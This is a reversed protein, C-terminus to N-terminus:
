QHLSRGIWVGIDRIEEFSVNHELPYEHWEVSYGHNGLLVRTQEGLSFPVVPDQTGHALFVPLGRNITTSENLAQGALPLYTSLAIIGALPKPYRLGCYLAIAGGQSFGALIVRRSDIGRAQENQILNSIAQSSARIGEEDEGDIFRASIIDYWAPMVLGNNISVPQRPAHPFIFRIALGSPLGLAPIVGAFDDGSAGLGHLWIISAGPTPGTEIEIGNLLRPANRTM